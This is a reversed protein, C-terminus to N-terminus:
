KQRKWRLWEITVEASLVAAERLLKRPLPCGALLKGYKMPWHKVCLGIYADCRESDQNRVHKELKWRLALCAFYDDPNFSDWPNSM